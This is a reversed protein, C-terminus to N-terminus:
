DVDGNVFRLKEPAGEPDRKAAARMRKRAIKKASRTLRVLKRGPVKCAPARVM